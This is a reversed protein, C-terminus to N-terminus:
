ELLLQLSPDTTDDVLGKRGARCIEEETMKFIECAARNAGLVRGDSVTLLIGDMSSEIISRYKAESERILQEAKKRQEEANIKETIDTISHIIYVIEGLDDLVPSNESIWYRVEFDDSGRVPIDYKQVDMTHTAKTSIVLELSAQM